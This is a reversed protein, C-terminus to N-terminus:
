WPIVGCASTDMVIACSMERDVDVVQLYCPIYHSNDFYYLNVGLPIQATFGNTLTALNLSSANAVSSTTPANTWLRIAGDKYYYVPHEIRLEINTASYAIGL